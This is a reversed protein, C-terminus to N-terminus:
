YVAKLEPDEAPAIIWQVNSAADVWALGSVGPYRTSYQAANTELQHVGRGAAPWLRALHSLDVIRTEMDDIIDAKITETAAHLVASARAREQSSEAQWLAFSCAGMVCALVAPTWRWVLVRNSVSRVHMKLVKMRSNRMSESPAERM